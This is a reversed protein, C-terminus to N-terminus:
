EWLQKLEEDAETRWQDMKELFKATNYRIFVGLGLLVFTFEFGGFREFRIEILTFNPLVGWDNQFDIVWHKTSFM